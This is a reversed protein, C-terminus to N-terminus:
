LYDERWKIYSLFIWAIAVAIFGDLLPKLTTALKPRGKREWSIATISVFAVLTFIANLWNSSMLAPATTITRLLFRLLHHLMDAM